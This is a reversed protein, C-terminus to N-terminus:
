TFTFSLLHNNLKCDMFIFFILSLQCYQTQEATYKPDSLHTKVKDLEMQALVTPFSLSVPSYYCTEPLLIPDRSYFHPAWCVPIPGLGSCPLSEQGVSDGVRGKGRGM